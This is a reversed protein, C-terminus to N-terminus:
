GMQMAALAIAGAGFRPDVLRRGYATVDARKLMLARLVGAGRIDGALRFGSIRGDVVFVKRLVNGDRLRMEEGRPAGAAVLPVGLHRLSNMAEAGPYRTEFGLMHEAVVRGQAVANPFYAHVYREGTLVDRTEAVDGAAYVDPLNTRLTDDVRVGWDTDIGSGALYECNPKVGTAAVYVDARLCEGTGLRLAEVRSEGEFGAAPVDMVVEVGRSRLADLVIAGTEQDLARPMVWRRSVMTVRLGLDRLVLAVEVGIFGAGVILASGVEGRRAREVLAKAATLSKFNYIGPLEVGPLPAHLRSGTAIVLRDYGITEGDTVVEREAPRVAGVAAGRRHAVRLRDLVDRGRWYLASERGTLFHDAMAPPSYPPHTEDSVMEIDLPSVGASAELERLREAAVLGAPGAGLILIRM